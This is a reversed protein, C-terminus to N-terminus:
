VSLLSFRVISLQVQLTVHLSSECAEMVALELLCKGVELLHDLLVIAIDLCVEVDAFEQSFANFILM